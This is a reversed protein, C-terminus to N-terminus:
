SLIKARESYFGVAEKLLNEGKPTMHYVVKRGEKNKEVYGNKRLSYLVMYATVNGPMFGFRKKVEERLVYAHKPGDRLIRLLYPWLCDKTNNRKLKKMPMNRTTKRIYFM